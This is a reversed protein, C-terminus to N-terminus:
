ISKTCPVKKMIKKWDRNFKKKIFPVLHPVQCGACNQHIYTDGEFQAGDISDISCYSFLKKKRVEKFGEDNFRFNSCACLYCNLNEMEHCKKNKEYLPCFDKEKKVMNDYEFYKIVEDDSLHTLKKMIIEHKIAHKDFWDLYAM